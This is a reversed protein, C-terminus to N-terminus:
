SNKGDGILKLVPGQDLTTLGKLPVAHKMREGTAQAQLKILNM